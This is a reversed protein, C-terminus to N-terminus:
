MKQKLNIDEITTLKINEYSGKVVHVESDSFEEVLSADDTAQFAADKGKLYCKKILETKFAQPTQAQYLKAREMTKVVKGDKVEKITDKVPVMLLCADKTTLTALIDDICKKPVFPRAGDHILVHDQSVQSLGNLVSDQREQGGSVFMLRESKILEEFQGREEAKTVVIIQECRSDELFLEMTKEYVTKDGLKYLVKNYGLEMRKGSGACLVIASYKM